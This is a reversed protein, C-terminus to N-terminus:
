PTVVPDAGALLTRMRREQDTASFLYTPTAAYRGRPRYGFGLLVEAVAVFAQTTGAEVVIDPLWHRILASAGRLVAVEAGEVDVKLLGIRGGISLGDLTRVPTEGAGFSVRTTGLNTAPGPHLSGVGDTDGVACCAAIVRGELGNAAINMELLDHNPRHPEFAHVPADLVAGFFVAHNGINAGVDIIATGPLYVERCKMLVDLEYFSRNGRIMRGMHDPDPHAWLEIRRGMFEFIQKQM